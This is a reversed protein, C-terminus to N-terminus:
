YRSPGIHRIKELEAAAQRAVAEARERAKRREAEDLMLSADIHPALQKQSDPLTDLIHTLAKLSTELEYHDREVRKKLDSAVRIWYADRSSVAGMHMLLARRSM